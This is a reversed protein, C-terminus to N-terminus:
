PFASTFGEELCDVLEHVAEEITQLRDSGPEFKNRTKSQFGEGTVAEFFSDCADTASSFLKERLVLRQVRTAVLKVDFALNAARIADDAHDPGDQYYTRCAALVSTVGEVIESVEARTEKRKERKNSQANTVVWGGVGIIWTGVTLADKYTSFFQAVDGM